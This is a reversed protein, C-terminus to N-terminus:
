NDEESDNGSNNADEHGSIDDTNSSDTDDDTSTATTTATTSANLTTLLPAYKALISSVEMTRAANANQVDASVGAPVTASMPAFAAPAVMVKATATDNIAVKAAPPETDTTTASMAFSASGNISDELALRSDEVSDQKDSVVALLTQASTDTETQVGDSALHNVVQALIDEHATLRADLDSRVALSDTV